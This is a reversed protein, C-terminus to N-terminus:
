GRGLDTAADILAVIVSLRWYSSSGIHLPSPFVGQAIGQYWKSRSMPILGVIGRKRDGIVDPLKLLPDTASHRCTEFQKKVSEM